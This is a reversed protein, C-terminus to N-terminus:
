SFCRAGSAAASSRAPTSGSVPASRVQPRQVLRRRDEGGDGLIRSTRLQRAIQVLEIRAASPPGISGSREAHPSRADSPWPRVRGFRSATRETGSGVSTVSVGRGLITNSLRGACLRLRFFTLYIASFANCSATHSVCSVHRRNTFRQSEHDVALNRRLVLGNQDVGQRLRQSSRVLRACHPSGPSSWRPTADPLPASRDLGGKAAFDGDAPLVGIFYQHAQRSAQMASVIVNTSFRCLESM